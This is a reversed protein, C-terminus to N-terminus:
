YDSENALQEVIAAIERGLKEALKANECEVMVRIKPETGSARLLVRGKNKLEQKAKLLADQLDVHSLVYEKDKVVIGYNVQPYPIVENLASLKKGSEQILSSLVIATLVGDGTTSLKSLIIHGSQEGGLILDDSLMEELVHQDGVDTRILKIGDEALLKEAGMNTHLTGVVTSRNLIGQEKFHKALIYIISDGDVVNGKEDIAMIRDADGDFSFGLDAKHEKVLKACIEPHLAGCNVNVNKGDHELNVAIVNAGLEAFVRPAIEFVAGNSCDIVIKLGDLPKGAGVLYELYSSLEDHSYKLRGIDEPECVHYLGMSIREEILDKEADPIKYGSGAFVKIGNFEPPNHSASIVVGYDAKLKRALYAVAPTSVMGLDIVNGGGSTVGAIIAAALMDGSLRTDRGLVILPKNKIYTLANACRTAIECTLETGAVGRIGDTGFYKKM